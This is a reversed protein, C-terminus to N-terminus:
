RDRPLLATWGVIVRIPRPRPDLQVNVLFRDADWRGDIPFGKRHRAVTERAIEDLGIGGIRSATHTFYKEVLDRGLGVAEFIQSGLFSRLTSIGMRSFTKLLGKKVATIYREVAEVPSVPKELMGSEVLERITSLATSPCIANAGYGLLLAFHMVERAEGSEVVVGASGDFTLCGRPM